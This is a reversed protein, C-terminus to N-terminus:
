KKKKRVAARKKALALKAIGSAPETPERGFASPLGVADRGRRKGPPKIARM